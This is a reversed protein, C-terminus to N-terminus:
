SKKYQFDIHIDTNNQICDHLIILDDKERDKVLYISHFKFRNSTKQFYFQRATTLLNRMLHFRSLGILLRAAWKHLLSPSPPAEVKSHNTTYLFTM